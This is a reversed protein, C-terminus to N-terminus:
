YRKENLDKIAKLIMGPKPKRCDCDLNYINDKGTLFHPCYYFYDILNSGNKDVLLNNLHKNIIKLTTETFFGRAVGSQNTM